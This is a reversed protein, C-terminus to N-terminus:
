DKREIPMSSIIEAVSQQDLKKQEVKEVLMIDTVYLHVHVDILGTQYNHTEATITEGIVAVKNGNRCLQLAKEAVSNTAVLPIFSKKDTCHTDVCLTFYVRYKNKYMTRKPNGYCIGIYRFENYEAMDWLEIREYDSYFDRELERLSIVEAIDDLEKIVFQNDDFVRLHNTDTNLETAKKTIFAKKHKLDIYAYTFDAVMIKQEIFTEHFQKNEPKLENLENNFLKGQGNRHYKTDWAKVQDVTNIIRKILKGRYTDYEQENAIKFCHKDTVIIKDVAMSENIARQEDGIAVCHNRDDDIYIFTPIADCIEKQTWWHNPNSKLLDYLRYQRSTLEAM